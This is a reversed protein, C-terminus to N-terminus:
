GSNCTVGEEHDVPVSWAATVLVASLGLLLVGTADPGAGGGAGHAAVALAPSVAAVAGARIRSASGRDPSRQVGWVSRLAWWPGSSGRYGQEEGAPKSAAATAAPPPVPKGPPDTGM